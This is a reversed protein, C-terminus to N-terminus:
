VHMFMCVNCSLPAWARLSLLQTSCICEAREHTLSAACGPRLSQLATRLPEVVHLSACLAMNLPIQVKMYRLVAGDKIVGAEILIGLQTPKKRKIPGGEKAPQQNPM